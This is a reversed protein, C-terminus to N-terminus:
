NCSTGKDPPRNLSTGQPPPRPDRPAGKKKTEHHKKGELEQLLLFLSLHPSLARTFDVGCIYFRATYFYQAEVPTIPDTDPNLVVM